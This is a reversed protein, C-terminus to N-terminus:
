KKAVVENVSSIYDINGVAVMKLNSIKQSIINFSSLSMAELELKKNEAAIKNRQQKLDSLVFGKIVLNNIGAMYFIGIVIIILALAKNINRLNFLGKFVFLKSGNTNEM